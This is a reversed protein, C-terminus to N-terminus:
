KRCFNLPFFMKIMLSFCLELKVTIKNSCHSLKCSYGKAPATKLITSDDTSAHSDQLPANLVYFYVSWAVYTVALRRRNYTNTYNRTVHGDYPPIGCYERAVGCCIKYITKNKSGHTIEILNGIHGRTRRAFTSQVHLTPFHPLDPSPFHVTSFIFSLFLPSQWWLAYRVCFVFRHFHNVWEDVWM